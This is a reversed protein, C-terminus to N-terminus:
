SSRNVGGRLKHDATTYLVTGVYLLLLVLTLAAGIAAAFAWARADPGPGGDNLLHYALLTASCGGALSILSHMIFFISLLNVRQVRGIPLGLLVNMKAVEYILGIRTRILLFGVFLALVALAGFTVPLCARQLAEIPVLLRATPRANL